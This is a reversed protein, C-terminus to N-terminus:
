SVLWKTAVSNEFLLCHIQQKCLYFVPSPFTNWMLTFFKTSSSINYSPIPQSNFCVIASSDAPKGQDSKTFSNSHPILLTSHNSLFHPACNMTVTESEKV